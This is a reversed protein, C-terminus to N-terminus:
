NTIHLINSVSNFNCFYQKLPFKSPGQTVAGDQIMSFESGCCITDAAIAYTIPDMSVRGCDPDHPCTREFAKFDDYTNRYILIGNVGGTIYVYGGDLQLDSYLPDTLDLYIDVAVTPINSQKNDCSFFGLVILLLIVIKGSIFYFYRNRM